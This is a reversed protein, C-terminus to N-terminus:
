VYLGWRWKTESREGHMFHCSWTHSHIIRMTAVVFKNVHNPLGVRGQMM